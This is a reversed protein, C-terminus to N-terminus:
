VVWFHGLLIFSRYVAFIQIKVKILSFRVWVMVAVEARVRIYLPGFGGCRGGFGVPSGYLYVCVFGAWWVVRGWSGPVGSPASVGTCTVHVAGSGFPVGGGVGIFVCGIGNLFRLGV